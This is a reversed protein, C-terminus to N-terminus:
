YQKYFASWGELHYTLHCVTMAQASGAALAVLAFAAFAFCRSPTM